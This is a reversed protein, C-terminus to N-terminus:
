RVTHVIHVTHCSADPVPDAFCNSYDAPYGAPLLAQLEVPPHFGTTVMYCTTTGQPQLGRPTPQTSNWSPPLDGSLVSTANCATLEWKGFSTARVAAPVM